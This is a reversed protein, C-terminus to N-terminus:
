ISKPEVRNAARELAALLTSGITFIIVVTTIARGLNWLTGGSVLDYQIFRIANEALSADVRYALSSGPTALLPWQWLTVTIGFIFAAITGYTALSFIQIWRKSARPLLGAGFGVLGAGLMQFPLWAGIGGTFLASVCISLAGVAAGFRARFVFGQLIIFAFMPEVGAFGAGFLRALANLAVFAGLLTIQRSTM